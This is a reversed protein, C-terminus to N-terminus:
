IIIFIKSSSLKKERNLIRESPYMGLLPSLSFPLNSLLRIWIDYGFDLIAIDVPHLNKMKKLMYHKQTWLGLSAPLRPPWKVNEEVPLKEM